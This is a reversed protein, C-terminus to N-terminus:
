FYIILYCILGGHIIGDFAKTLCTGQFPSYFCVRILLGCLNALRKDTVRIPQMFSQMSRFRVHGAEVRMARQVDGVIERQVIRDTMIPQNLVRGNRQLQPRRWRLM